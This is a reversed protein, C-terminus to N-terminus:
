AHCPPVIFYIGNLFQVTGIKMTESSELLVLYIRGVNEDCGLFLGGSCYALYLVVQCGLNREEVFKAVVNACLPNFLSHLVIHLHYFFESMAASYLIVRTIEVPTRRSLAGVAEKVKKRLIVKQENVFAMDAHGLYVGHETAVAGSLM